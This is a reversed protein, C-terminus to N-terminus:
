INIIADLRTWRHTAGVGVASVSSTISIGESTFTLFSVGAGCLVVPVAHTLSMHLTNILLKYLGPYASLDNDRLM